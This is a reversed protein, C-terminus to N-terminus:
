PKTPTPSVPCIERQTGAEQLLFKFQVHTTKRLRCDEMFRGLSSNHCALRVIDAVGFIYSAPRCYFLIPEYLM